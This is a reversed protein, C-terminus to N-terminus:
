FGRISTLRPAAFQPVLVVWAATGLAMAQLSIGSALAVGLLAPAIATSVVMLGAYVGRVMGLRRAGFVEVWVAGAVVANSGATLGLGCFLLWLGAVGDLFGLALIGLGLPLLYLRMLGLSGIRDVLRGSLWTALAQFAAFGLFAAGVQSPRWDRMEALTGQHLFVATVVFPAVLVVSLAALFRADRLLPWRGSPGGPEESTEDPALPGPLSAALRRMLPIAVVLIFAGVAIWLWRWDLLGLAATTALPLLAEGLIFGFAATAVSRGRRTGGHRAATVIAIHGTLGQGGLRLLFLGPLLWLSSRGLALILAGSGLIGLAVTVSQRPSLRDALGGLWFMLLGSALTAAGYITGFAGESLAFEARLDAGFLGIFFTQGVSSLFAALLGFRAASHALPM